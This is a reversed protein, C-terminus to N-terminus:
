KGLCCIQRLDFPDAAAAAAAADPQGSVTSGIHENSNSPLKDIMDGDIVENLSTTMVIFTFVSDIM